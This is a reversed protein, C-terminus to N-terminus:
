GDAGRKATVALADGPKIAGLTGTERSLILTDPQIKAIKQSGNPSTIAVNGGNVATITSDAVTVQDGPAAGVAMAGALMAAVTLVPVLGGLRTQGMQEVDKSRRGHNSRLM